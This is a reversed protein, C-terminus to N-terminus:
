LLLEQQIALLRLITASINVGIGNFLILNTSSYAAFNRAEEEIISLLLVLSSPPPPPFAMTTAAVVSLACDYCYCYVPPVRGGRFFLPVQETTAPSLLTQTM